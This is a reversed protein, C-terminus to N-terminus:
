FRAQWSVHWNPAATARVREGKKQPNVTFWLVGAGLAAGGAVVLSIDARRARDFALERQRLGEPDCKGSPCRAESDEYVNRARLAEFTAYAVALVSTAALGIVAVRRGGHPTTDIEAGPKDPTQQRIAGVPSASVDPAPPEPDFHPISVEVVQGPTAAVATQWLVKGNRSVVVQHEMPDVPTAVVFLSEPAPSGDLEISLGPQAQDHKLILRALNPELAAAATLAAQERERQNAASALAAAERYLTWASATRGVLAYCRALNLATGVAPDLRQSDEFRQCAEAYRDAEMLRRGDLFLSEAAARSDARAVDPSGLSVALLLLAGGIKRLSVLCTV